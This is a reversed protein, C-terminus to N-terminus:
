RDGEALLRNLRDLYWAAKAYDQAANGKHNARWLYKIVNGKLLGIFEERTLAARM